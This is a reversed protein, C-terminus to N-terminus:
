SDKSGDERRRCTSALPTDAWTQSFFAHSNTAAVELSLLRGASISSM